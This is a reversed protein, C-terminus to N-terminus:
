RGSIYDLTNEDADLVVLLPRATTTLFLEDCFLFYFSTLAYLEPSCKNLMHLVRAEM